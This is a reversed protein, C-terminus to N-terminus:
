TDKQSILLDSREKGKLDKIAYLIVISSVEKKRLEKIYKIIQNKDVKMMDKLAWGIGKLVLPEKDFILNNCMELAISNFKGSKAVKRTFLVVSMRRLWINKDRNWSRVLKIM